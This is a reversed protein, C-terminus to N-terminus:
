AFLPIEKRLRDKIMQIYEPKIEILISNRNLKASVLATTGTGGFPDLVTGEPPCGAQICPIILKVPFIAFHADSFRAGSITWVSKKSAKGYKNPKREKISNKMNLGKIKKDKKSKYKLENKKTNWSTKTKEKYPEAIALSDFYYKKSKSFLFIYEHAKTCRDIMIPEPTPCAKSWIIDQRLYWGDAQLAFAIRWPLGYMNKTKIGATNIRNRKRKGNGKYKKHLGNDGAGAGGSTCYSDGINLWLTGDKRLARKVERFIQVTHWVYASIDSELGYVCQMAPISLEPLGPMPSFTGATWTTPEIDYDRLQWYPPSTICCHASEPQLTQLIELANGQIIENKM